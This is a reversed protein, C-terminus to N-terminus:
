NNFKYSSSNFLSNNEIFSISIGSLINKILDYIDNINNCQKFCNGLKYFEDFTLEISYDNLSVIDDKLNCTILISTEKKNMKLKYINNNTSIEKSFSNINPTLIDLM